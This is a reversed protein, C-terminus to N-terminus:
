KASKMAADISNSLAIQADCLACPLHESCRCPSKIGDLAIASKFVLELEEIRANAEAINTALLEITIAADSLYESIEVLDCQHVFESEARLAKVQAAIEINM